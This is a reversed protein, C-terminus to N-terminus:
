PVGGPQQAGLLNQVRCEFEEAVRITAKPVGDFIRQEEITRALEAVVCVRRRCGRHDGCQPKNSLKCVFWLIVLSRIQGALGQALNEGVGGSERTPSKGILKRLELSCIAATGRLDNDDVLGGVSEAFHALRGEPQCRVARHDDDRLWFSFTETFEELAAVGDVAFGGCVDAM